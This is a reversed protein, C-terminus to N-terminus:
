RIMSHWEREVSPLLSLMWTRLRYVLVFLVGRIYLDNGAKPRLPYYMM